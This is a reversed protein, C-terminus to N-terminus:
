TIARRASRVEAALVKLFNLSVAPDSHMLAMVEDRPIFGVQAGALATATLTYRQNGVIGPLGLLSGALAPVAFLANGAPSEWTLTAGGRNLIYLGVPEDGQRFLVHDEECPVLTARPALALLLEPDAVFATPDLHM